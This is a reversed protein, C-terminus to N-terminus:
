APSPDPVYWRHGSAAAIRDPNSPPSLSASFACSWLQRVIASRSVGCGLGCAIVIGLGLNYSGVLSSTVQSIASWAQRSPESEAATRGSAVIDILAHQGIRPMWSMTGLVPCCRLFLACIFYTSRTRTSAMAKKKLESVLFSIQRLPLQKFSVSSTLKCCYFDAFLLRNRWLVQEDCCGSVLGSSNIRTTARVFSRRHIWAVNGGRFKQPAFCQSLCVCSLRVAYVLRQQPVIQVYCASHEGPFM